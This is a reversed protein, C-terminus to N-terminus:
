SGVLWTACGFVFFSKGLKDRFKVLDQTDNSKIKFSFKCYPEHFISQHNSLNRLMFSGTVTLCLAQSTKHVIFIHM